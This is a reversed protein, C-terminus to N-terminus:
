RDLEPEDLEAEIRALEEEVNDERIFREAEDAYDEALPVDTANPAHESPRTAGLRFTTPPRQESTRDDDIVLTRDKRCASFAFLVLVLAAAAKM